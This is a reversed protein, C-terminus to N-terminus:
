DSFSYPTHPINLCAHKMTFVEGVRFYLYVLRLCSWSALAFNTLDSFAAVLSLLKEAIEAPILDITDIRWSLKYSM